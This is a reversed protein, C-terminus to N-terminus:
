KNHATLTNKQVKLMQANAEKNDLNLLGYQHNYKTGHILVWHLFDKVVNDDTKFKIGVKEIAIEQPRSYELTTLVDDLTAGDVFAASVNKKLDLGVLSIGKKLLRSDIDFINALVNFSVGMPDKAIATNLFLDDGSIRKGRFASVEEGFNHAFLTAVSSANSGSYVVLNEFAKNKKSDEDFDENYFFLQKIKKANLQKGSLQRAADSNHATIPLVATEGFFVVYGTGDTDGYAVNMDIDDTTGGVIRFEVGPESKAYEVIWKEVIPRVFRPARITRVEINNETANGEAHAAVGALGLGLMMATTLVLRKM